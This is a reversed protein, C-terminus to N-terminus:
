REYPFTIGGIRCIERLCETPVMGAPDDTEDVPFRTTWDCVAVTPLRLKTIGMGDERSPLFVENPQLHYEDFDTSCVVVFVERTRVIDARRSVVIMPRKKGDGRRGPYVAWFIRGPGLAAM